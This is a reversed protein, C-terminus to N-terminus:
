CLEGIYLSSNMDDLLADFNAEDSDEDNQDATELCRDAESSLVDVEPHNHFEDEECQDDDEDDSNILSAVDFCSLSQTPDPVASAVNSLPHVLANRTNDYLGEVPELGSHLGGPPLECVSTDGTSGDPPSRQLTPLVATRADDFMDFLLKANLALARAASLMSRSYEGAVVTTSYQQAQRMAVVLSAMARNALKQRNVIADAVTSPFVALEIDVSMILQRLQLGVKKVLQTYNEAPCSSQVAQCLDMVTCVVAATSSYPADGSRSTVSTQSVTQGAHLSDSIALMKTLDLDPAAECFSSDDDTSSTATSLRNTDEMHQLWQADDQSQQRQQHLQKAVSQESAARSFEPESHSVLDGTLSPRHYLSSPPGNCYQDRVISTLQEPTYAVIYGLPQTPPNYRGYETSDKPQALSCSSEVTLDVDSGYTLDDSTHRYNNSGAVSTHDFSTRATPMVRAPLGFSSCSSLSSLSGFGTLIPFSPRAPKPPPTSVAESDVDSTSSSNQRRNQRKAEDEHRQCEEAFIEHLTTKVVSISPRESPEYSWCSCMLNYLGPPCDQPLPLREGGEIKSIVDNNKVGQFPKVGFMMIEWMCVGFMWVDSSTTFRRFNISEPAMWKIPLKGKTAKYYCQETLSRSLGFDALKVCDESSVLVNRAAVDRHVFNKGELYSLAASLQYCYMILTHLKLRSKSNQLFSRMEGMHALEMVICVPSQSIIGILRIIHPHDFQQMIYAEELFKESVSPDCDEKCTKIAVEVASGDAITYTGRQVDGFQGKGIVSLLTIQKRDIEYSKNSLSSYDTDEEIVDSADATCQNKWCSVGSNELCCHGDVVEAINEAMSFEDTTIVLPEAAGAVTLYVQGKNTAEGTITQISRIKSFTAVHIPSASKDAIYGIGVEPGIVLQVPVSWSVGLGCPFTEHDFHWVTRLMEFFKLMSDDESMCEYQKYTDQIIRRLLKPKTSDLFCKPFFKKMGVEKEIYDLNTKKEAVNHQVDRFLRRIQICALQVAVSYDIECNLQLYDSRIQDYLFSFTTKDKLLLERLDNPMYRVRLEVFFDNQSLSSVTYFRELARLVTLDKLLWISRSGDSTQTAPGKLKIAYAARYIRHGAGLRGVVLDIVDRVLTSSGCKMRHCSGNPLLVNLNLAAEM